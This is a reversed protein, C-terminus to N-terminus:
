GAFVAVAHASKGRQEYLALFRGDVTLLAVPGKTPLLLDLARGHTVYTAQEEDLEVCPFCRTATEAMSLVTPADDGLEGAESLRFPGVRTRRLRTLHGGVGLSAGLDRALARVYTGTSCAVRVDVDVCDDVRRIDLVDFVSVQVPRAALQVLEGTRVREYARRGDVKIASVASPVQQLDGTLGAVGARVAGEDLHSADATSVVRGAADDTDTASGLRVTADYAKDALQLHGLLRTARGVGAVLVGTAMPDLTGAHGVRRTRLLRRLRAVVDHSTLGAPKDIVVLGDTM